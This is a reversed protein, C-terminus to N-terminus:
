QKDEDDKGDSVLAWLVKKDEEYWVHVIDVLQGDRAVYSHEYKEKNTLDKLVEETLLTGNQDVTGAEGLKVVFNM